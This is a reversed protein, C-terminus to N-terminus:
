LGEKYNSSQILLERCLLPQNDKLVEAVVKFKGKLAPVEAEEASISFDKLAYSGQFHCIINSM